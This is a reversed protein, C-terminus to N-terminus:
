VSGSSGNPAPESNKALEEVDTMTLVNMKRAKEFVRALGTCPLENLADIDEHSFVLEGDANCVTHAVLLAMVGDVGGARTAAAIEWRDRQHGSMTRVHITGGMEGWEPVELEEIAPGPSALITDRTLEM